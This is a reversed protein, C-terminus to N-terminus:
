GPSVQDLRNLLGEAVEHAAQQADPDIINNRVFAQVTSLAVYLDDNILYFFYNSTLAKQLEVRATAMRRAYDTEDINGAYRSLLRKQWTKYNPPLVFVAKVDPALSKFEAVGQVEVDTVAIKNDDHAKQIEAVSTGYINGSYMKAEVFAHRDLMENAQGLSIFHYEYGDAEMKNGNMRPSRTTHSVIHHYLGTDLLKYKLSDKGAGSVGVLLLIPTERVLAITEVSPTYSALKQGINVTSEPNDM